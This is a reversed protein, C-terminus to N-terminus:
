SGYSLRGARAPALPSKSALCAESVVFSGAADDHVSQRLGGICYCHRRSASVATGTAAAMLM